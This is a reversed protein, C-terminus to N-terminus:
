HKTDNYRARMSLLIGVADDPEDDSKRNDSHVQQLQDLHKALRALRDRLHRVDQEVLHKAKRQGKLNRIVYEADNLVRALDLHLARIDNNDITM